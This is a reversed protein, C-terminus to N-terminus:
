PVPIPGTVVRYYRKPQTAAQVDFWLQTPVGLTVNALGTWSNTNSLDTTYQIGYTLGVVGDITVGSDLAISVGAPNVTLVAPNSTVSGSVNTVVVSFIGADTLQLNTLLLSSNTAGALAQGGKQWQYTLLGTGIASVNFAVSKGWFGLQSQPQSIITPDNTHSITATFTTGDCNADGCCGATVAFDVLDNTHLQVRIDYDSGTGDGAAVPLQFLKGGNVFVRTTSGDGGCATDHDAIHGHIRVVDTVTSVWRRVAWQERPAFGANNTGGDPHEAPATISVHFLAPNRWWITGDWVSLLAFDNTADYGPILDGTVDNTGMIGATAERRELFAM